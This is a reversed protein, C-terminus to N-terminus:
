SPPTRQPVNTPPEPFGPPSSNTSPPATMHPGQPTPPPATRHMIDPAATSLGQIISQMRLNSQQFEQAITGLLMHLNTTYNTITTTTAEHRRDTHHNITATLSGFKEELKDEFEKMTKTLYKETILPNTNPANGMAQVKDAIVERVPTQALRIATQNPDSGDISGRHPIFDIRRGLIYTSKHLWETYVATNLCQLHCWGAQKNNTTNGFSIGVINNEGFLQKMAKTITAQSERQPLNNVVLTTSIRLESPHGVSRDRPISVVLRANNYTLGDKLIIGRAEVTAFTLFVFFFELEPKTLGMFEHQHRNYYSEKVLSDFITSALEHRLTEGKLHLRLHRAKTVLEYGKEVKGICKVGDEMELAFARHGNLLAMGDQLPHLLHVKIFGVWNKTVANIGIDISNSYASSLSINMLRLRELCAGRTAQRSM